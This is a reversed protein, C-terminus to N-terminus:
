NGLRQMTVAVMRDDNKPNTTSYTVWYGADPYRVLNYVRGDPMEKLPVESGFVSEYTPPNAGKGTYTVAILQVKNESDLSIQAMEGDSFVYLLTSGDDSKPKEDLIKKVEDASAGIKVGRYDTFVPKPTQTGPIALPAPETTVNQETGPAAQGFTRGALWILLVAIVIGVIFVKIWVKEQRAIM